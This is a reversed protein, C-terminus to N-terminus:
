AFESMIQKYEESMVPRQVKKKVVPEELKPITLPKVLQVPAYLAKRLELEMIGIKLGSKILQQEYFSNNEYYKSM